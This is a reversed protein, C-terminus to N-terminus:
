RPRGAEDQDRSAAVQPARSRLAAWGLLGLSALLTPAGVTLGIGLTFAAALSAPRREDGTRALFVSAAPALLALEYNLAHPVILLTAGFLPLM